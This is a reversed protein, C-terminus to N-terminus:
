PSTCASSNDLRWNAGLAGGVLITALVGAEALSSKMTKGGALIVWAKGTTIPEKILPQSNIEGYLVIALYNKVNESTLKAFRSRGEKNLEIEVVAGGFELRAIAEARSIDRDTIAPAELIFAMCRQKGMREECEGYRGHHVPM